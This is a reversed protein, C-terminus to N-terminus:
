RSKEARGVSGKFNLTKRGESFVVEKYQARIIVGVPTEMKIRETIVKVAEDLVEQPIIKECKMKDGEEM